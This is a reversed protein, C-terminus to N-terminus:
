RSPRPVKRPTPTPARSPTCGSVPGTVTGATQTGDGWNITAAYDGTSLGNPDTFTAVTVNTLSQGETASIAIATVSPQRVSRRRCVRLTVSTAGNTVGVGTKNWNTTRAYYTTGINTAVSVIPYNTDMEADDGYTAGQSAGSLASGTLTYSNGGNATISSISPTSSSNVSGTGTYTYLQNDAGVTFLAQGNPLMLFRDTFSPSVFLQGVLDSPDGNAVTPTIDTITNSAYDYDFM